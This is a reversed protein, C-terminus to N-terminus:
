DDRGGEIVAWPQVGRKAMRMALFDQLATIEERTKVFEAEVGKQSSSLKGHLKELEKNLLKLAKLNLGWWAKMEKIMAEHETVLRRLEEDMENSGKMERSRVPAALM